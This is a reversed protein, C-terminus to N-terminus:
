YIKKSNNQIEKFLNEGFLYANLHKKTIRKCKYTDKIDKSIRQATSYSCGLLNMLDKYSIIKYDNM